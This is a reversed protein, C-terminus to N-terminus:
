LNYNYNYNYNYSYDYLIIHFMYYLIMNYQIM